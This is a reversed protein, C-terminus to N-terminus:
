VYISYKGSITHNYQTIHKSLLNQTFNCSYGKIRIPTLPCTNPHGNVKLNDSTSLKLNYLIYQVDNFSKSERYLSSVKTTGRMQQLTLSLILNLDRIQYYRSIIIIKTLDLNILISGM